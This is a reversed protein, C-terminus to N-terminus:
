HEKQLGLAQLHEQNIILDESVHLHMLQSKASFCVIFLSLPLNFNSLVMYTEVFIKSIKPEERSKAM